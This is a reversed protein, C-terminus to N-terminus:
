AGQAGSDPVRKHLCLAISYVGVFLLATGTLELSEELLSFLRYHAWQEQTWHAIEPTNRVAAPELFLAGVYALLGAVFPAGKAYALKRRSWFFGALLAFAILALPAFLLVWGFGEKNADGNLGIARLLESSGATNTSFVYKALREHLSATEDASLAVFLASVFLWVWRGGVKPTNRGELRHAWAAVGAVALLLASSFWTPLNGEQDLHFFPARHSLLHASVLGIISCLLTLM